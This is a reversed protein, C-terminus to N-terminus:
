LLFFLGAAVCGPFEDSLLGATGTLGPSKRRERGGGGGGGNIMQKTTDLLLLPLLHSEGVRM